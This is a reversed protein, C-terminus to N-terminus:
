PAQDIYEDANAEYTKSGDRQVPPKPTQQGKQATTDATQPTKGIEGKAPSKGISQFTGNNPKNDQQM